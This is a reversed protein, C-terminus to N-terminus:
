NQKKMNQRADIKQLIRKFHRYIIISRHTLSEFGFAKSLRIQDIVVNIDIQLRAHCLAPWRIHKPTIASSKICNLM